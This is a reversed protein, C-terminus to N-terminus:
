FNPEIKINYKTLLGVVTDLTFKAGKIKNNEPDITFNTSSRFDANQLNTNKFIANQLDCDNFVASSLNCETFDVEQLKTKNFAIKSLKRKFFSSHNLQCKDVEIFFAFENCKNFQLGLM